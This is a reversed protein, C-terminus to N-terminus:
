FRYGRAQIRYHEAYDGDVEMLQRHTGSRRDTGRGARHDPRGCADPRNMFDQFTGTARERWGVADLDGLPVGDVTIEGATQRYLGTLLQVLSTKGAGNIGVVAVTRGVPLHVDVDTLPILLVALYWLFWAFRSLPGHVRASVRHRSIAAQKRSRLCDKPISSFYASRVLASVGGGTIVSSDDAACGDRVSGTRRRLASLEEV